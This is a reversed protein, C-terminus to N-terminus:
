DGVIGRQGPLGGTSDTLGADGGIGLLTGVSDFCASVVLSLLASILPVPALAALVSFDPAFATLSLDPAAFFAEPLATVGLPVGLLATFAMGPMLAGPVKKIFLVATVFIGLLALLPGPAAISGMDLLNGEAAVLGANILGSLTLFRGLGASLAFKSPAKSRGSRHRHTDRGPGKTRGEFHRQLAGAARARFLLVPCLGAGRPLSGSM